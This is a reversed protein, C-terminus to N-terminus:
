GTFGFHLEEIPDHRRGKTISSQEQSRQEQRRQGSAGNSFPLHDRPTGDSLVERSLRM